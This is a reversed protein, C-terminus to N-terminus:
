KRSANLDEGQESRVVVWLVRARPPSIRISLASARPCESGRFVVTRPQYKSMRVNHPPPTYSKYKLGSGICIWFVHMAAVFLLPAARLVQFTNYCMRDRHATCANAHVSFHHEIVQSRM